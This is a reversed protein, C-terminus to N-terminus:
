AMAAFKSHLREAYLQLQDVMDELETLEEDVDDISQMHGALAKENQKMQAAFQVISASEAKMGDYKDCLKELVNNLLQMREMSGQLEMGVYVAVNESLYRALERVDDPSAM